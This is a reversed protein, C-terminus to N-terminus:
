QLLINEKAWQYERDLDSYDVDEKRQNDIDNAFEEEVIKCESMFEGLYIVELQSDFCMKLVGKVFIYDEHNLFFRRFLMSGLIMDICQERSCYKIVSNYDKVRQIFYFKGSAGYLETDSKYLEPDYFMVKEILANKLVEPQGFRELLTKRQYSFNHEPIFKVFYLSCFLIIIGCYIVTRPDTRIKKLWLKM